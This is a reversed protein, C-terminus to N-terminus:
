ISNLVETPTPRQIEQARPAADDCVPKLNPYRGLTLMIVSSIAFIPILLWLFETYRGALDYAVGAAYSGFGAFVNALAMLIAFFTSFFRTGLYRTLLYGMVDVEAGLALGLLLAALTAQLMSGDFNLLIAISFIPLAFMTAGIFRGHFRDLLLGAVLRGILSAIGVMGVAFAASGRDIGGTTVIEVFHVVIALLGFTFMAPAIVLRWFHSSRFGERVALGVLVPPASIQGVGGTPRDRPGFFMLLTLPMLIVFWITPLAIYAARWGYNVMFYQAIMPTLFSSIGLGALTVAMAFGRSVSFRSVVASTWITPGILPFTIALIVWLTLWQWTAGDNLAMAAFTASFAVVGVIAIRRPGIRDALWGSFAVTFATLISHIAPGLTVQARTWGFEAQLPAMFLGQSYFNIGAISVGLMSVMVLSWNERWESAATRELRVPM